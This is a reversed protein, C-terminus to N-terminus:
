KGCYNGFRLRWRNTTRETLSGLTFHEEWAAQAYLATLDWLQESTWYCPSNDHLVVSGPELSQTEERDDSSYEGVSWSVDQGSISKSISAEAIFNWRIAAIGYGILASVDGGSNTSNPDSDHLRTDEFESYDQDHLSQLWAIQWSSGLCRDGDGEPDWGPTADIIQRFAHVETNDPEENPDLWYWEFGNDLQGYPCDNTTFTDLTALEWESDADADGM